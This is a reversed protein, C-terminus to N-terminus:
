FLHPRLLENADCIKFSYPRIATGRLHGIGAPPRPRTPRPLQDSLRPRPQDGEDQM